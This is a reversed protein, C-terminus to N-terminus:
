RGLQSLLCTAIFPVKGEKEYLSGALYRFVFSHLSSPTVVAFMFLLWNSQCCLFSSGSTVGVFGMRMCLLRAGQSVSLSLHLSLCLSVYLSLTYSLFFHDPRSVLTVM